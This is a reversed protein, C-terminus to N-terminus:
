TRRARGTLTKVFEGMRWGWMQMIYTVLQLPRWGDGDPPTPPPTPSEPCIGMHADRQEITEFEVGCYPCWHPFKAFHEPHHDQKWRIMDQVSEHTLGELTDNFLLEWMQMQHNWRREVFGMLQNIVVVGIVGLVVLIIGMVILESIPSSAPALTEIVICEQGSSVLGPTLRYVKNVICNLQKKDLETQIQNKVTALDLNNPMAPCIQRTVVMEVSM